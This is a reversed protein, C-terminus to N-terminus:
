PMGTSTVSLRAVSSPKRRARGGRAAASRALRSRRRQAVLGDIMRWTGHAGALNNALPWRPEVRLTGDGDDSERHQELAERREADTLNTLVIVVGAPTGTEVPMPSVTAGVVHGAGEGAHVELRVEAALSSTLVRDAVEALAAPLALDGVRAPLAPVATLSAAPSVGGSERAASIGGKRVLLIGLPLGTVIATDISMARVPVTVPAAPSPEAVARGALARQITTAM